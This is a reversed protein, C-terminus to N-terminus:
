GSGGGGSRPIAARMPAAAPSLYHRTLRQWQGNGNLRELGQELAPLLRAALPSALAVGMHTQQGSDHRLPQRTLVAELGLERVLWLGPLENVVAVDFRAAALMRLLVTLNAPQSAPQSLWPTLAAPFAYGGVVGIRRGSLDSLHRLQLGQERRTYFGHRVPDGYGRTFSLYRRREPTDRIGITFDAEGAQLQALARRWPVRVLEVDLGAPQLAARAMDVDLGDGLPHGAELVYPPFVTAALRVRARPQAWAPGSLGLLFHRRDLMAFLM